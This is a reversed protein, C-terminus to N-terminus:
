YGSAPAANDLVTLVAPHRVTIEPRGHYDHLWGRVLIQRGDLRKPPRRFYHRDAAPIWIALGGALTLQTGARKVSVHTVRDRVIQFGDAAVDGGRVVGAAHSWLGRHAVRAVTEAAAYCASRRVNPPIAIVAALGARLLLRAADRGHVYIHALTRGYHDRRDPATSWAIRDHTSALLAILRNRAARAFPQDPAGDHGIEPANLGVIRIHRGGDLIVTDGDIVYRVHAPHRIGLPSCDAARAALPAGAVTLAVAVWLFPRLLAGENIRTQM